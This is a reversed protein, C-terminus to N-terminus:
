CSESCNGRRSNPIAVIRSAILRFGIRHVDIRLGAQEGHQALMEVQRAALVPAALPLAAGARHQDVALGLAGADRAHAAHACFCIVM